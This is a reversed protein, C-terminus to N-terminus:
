RKGVAKPIVESFICGLEMINTAIAIKRFLLEANRWQAKPMKM